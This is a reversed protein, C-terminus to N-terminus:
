VDKCACTVFPQWAQLKSGCEGQFRLTLDRERAESTNDRLQINLLTCLSQHSNWAYLLWCIVGGTPFPLKGWANHQLTLLYRWYKDIWLSQLRGTLEVQEVKQM